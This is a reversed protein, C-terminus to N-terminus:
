GHCIVVACGACSLSIKVYLADCFCLACLEGRIASQQISGHDCYFRAIVCDHFQVAGVRSAIIRKVNAPIHPIRFNIKTEVTDDTSHSIQSVICKPNLIITGKCPRRGFIRTYEQEVFMAAIVEAFLLEPTRGLMLM